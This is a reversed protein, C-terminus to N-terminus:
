EDTNGGLYKAYNNFRSVFLSFLETLETWNDQEILSPPFLTSGVGLGKAGAQLFDTFNELTVGGTPLLKLQPLPALIDKIYSSGLRTAPFVKVMDAGLSWARFIETPTFAGPFIPVKKAVCAKIVTEDLIPTVIFSAGATLALDLEAMTCVTGAGINLTGSFKEALYSITEAAKDSNMTIELTTLGCSEYLGALKKTKALPVNRLIGVLPINYFAEWSFPKSM